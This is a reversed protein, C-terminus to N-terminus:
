VETIYKYVKPSFFIGPKFKIISLKKIVGKCHEFDLETADLDKETIVIRGLEQRNNVYKIKYLPIYQADNGGKLNIKKGLTPVCSRRCFHHFTILNKKCMYGFFICNLANFM